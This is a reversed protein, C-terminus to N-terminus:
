RGLMRDAAAKRLKAYADAGLVEKALELMSSASSMDRPHQSAAIAKASRAHAVATNAAVWRPSPPLHEAMWESLVLWLDFAQDPECAVSVAGDAILIASAAEGSVDREWIRDEFEFRVRATM